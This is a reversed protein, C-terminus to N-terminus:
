PDLGIETADIRGYTWTLRVRKRETVGDDDTDRVVSFEADFTRVFGRGDVVATMEYDTVADSLGAPRGTGQVRYWGSESREAVSVASEPTAVYARVMESPQTFPVALPTATPTQTDVRTFDDTVTAAVYRDTGDFYSSRVLSRTGGIGERITQVAIREGDVRVNVDRKVRGVSGNEATYYDFWITYSSTSAVTEAHARGLRSANGLGTESVGPVAAPSGGPETPGPAAEVTVTTPGAGAPSTPKATTAVAEGSTGDGAMSSGALGFGASVGVAVVCLVVVGVVATESEAGVVARRVRDWLPFRLAGPAAGFHRECLETAVDRGVAYRLMEVLNAADVARAGSEVGLAEGAGSRGAAVVVDVSGVAELSTTAARGTLVYVVRTEGERRAVVSTGNRETEFGRARWLDTVFAVLSEGDLNRVHAELVDPDARNM